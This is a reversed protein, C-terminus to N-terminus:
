YGVFKEVVSEEKNFGLKECLDMMANVMGPPGFIYVNRELFDKVQSKILNENIIGYSYNPNEPEDIVITHSVKVKNILSSWKKLEKEYPIDDEHLNAYLLHIDADIKNVELFEFISVVPTIGIGGVLFLFRESFDNIVCQGMPANILIKDGKKLSLLKKSFDSNTIRKTIEIYNKDPSSSFSLFKNLDKNRLNEEDFIIKLFQGPQFRIKEKAIFRFSQVTSTRVISKDFNVYFSNM